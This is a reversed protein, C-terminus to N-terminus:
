RKPDVPLKVRVRSLLWWSCLGTLAILAMLPWLCSCIAVWLIPLRPWVARGHM